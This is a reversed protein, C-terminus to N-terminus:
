ITYAACSVGGRGEGGFKWGGLVIERKSEGEASKMYRPRAPGEKTKGPGGQYM